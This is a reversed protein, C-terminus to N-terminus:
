MFLRMSLNTHIVQFIIIRKNKPLKESVKSSITLLLVKKMKQIMSDSCKMSVAKM